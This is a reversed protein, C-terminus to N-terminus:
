KVVVKETVATESTLVRVIYTQAGAVPIDLDTTEVNSTYVPMGLLNYVDIHRLTGSLARVRIHGARSGFVVQPVPTEAVGVLGRGTYEMQLVIRNNVEMVGNSGAPRTVTFTYEPTQQLDLRFNNQERDILYVNHGFTEMGSFELRVTEGETLRLGLPTEQLGFAGSANIALPERQPTLSYVTLPLEDFFLTRVDERDSYEPLAQADHRLLAYSNSNGHIAHIRLAGNEVASARLVYPPNGPVTTTWNPSMRVSPISTGVYANAKQVFFSQLPPILNPHDASVASVTPNTTYVYRNGTTTAANFGTDFSGNWILYGAPSLTTNGQLFKTVDLFALYPNVVQVLDYDANAPVDLAFTTDAPAMSAGHTIFHHRSGRELNGSLPYRENYRDKYWDDPQPFTWTRDRSVSTSTVKLNFAMGRTLKVGPDGFTATFTNKNATGGAPNAQQFLNMYVDGWQPAPPNGSKFHYDGSYMDSLPASWMVFRDRETAKLQLEVRASDYHLVHPNKLLARDQVTICRCWASDALEPYHSVGTSIVVDTCAAPPWSVPSEYTGNNTTVTEVWNEPNYWDQNKLGTWRMPKAAGADNVHV